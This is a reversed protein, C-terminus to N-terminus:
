QPPMQELETITKRFWHELATRLKQRDGSAALSGFTEGDETLVIHQCPEDETLREPPVFHYLLCEHCAHKVLPDGFNPCIPTKSLPSMLRSCDGSQELYNLEERFM